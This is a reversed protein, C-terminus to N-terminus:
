GNGTAKEAPEAKKLAYDISAFVDALIAQEIYCWQGSKTPLRV